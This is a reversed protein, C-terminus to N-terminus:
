KEHIQKHCKSCVVMVERTNYEWALYGEKYILHHINLNINSGCVECRYGRVQMVFSRFALWRKDTMQESYTMLRNRTIPKEETAISIANRNKKHLKGYKKVLYAGNFGNCMGEVSKIPEGKKTKFGQREYHTYIMEATIEWKKNDIFDKVHELTPVGIEINKYKMKKGFNLNLCYRGRIDMVVM